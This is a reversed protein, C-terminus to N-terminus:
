LTLDELSYLEDIEDFKELKKATFYYCVSKSEFLDGCIAAFSNEHRLFKMEEAACKGQMGFSAAFFELIKDVTDDLIPKDSIIIPFFNM